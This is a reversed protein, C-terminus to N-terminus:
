KDATENKVIKLDGAKTLGHGHTDQNSESTINSDPTTCFM